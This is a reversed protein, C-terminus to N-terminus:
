AKGVKKTVPRRKLAVGPPPKDVFTQNFHENEASAIAEAEHVHPALMALLKKRQPPHLALNYLWGGLGYFSYNRIMEPRKANRLEDYYALYFTAPLVLELGDLDFKYEKRKSFMVGGADLTATTVIKHLPPVCYRQNRFHSIFQFTLIHDCIIPKFAKMRPDPHVKAGYEHHVM